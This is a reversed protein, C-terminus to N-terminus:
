SQRLGEKYVPRKKGHVVRREEDYLNPGNSTAKRFHCKGDWFKTDALVTCENEGTRMCCAGSYYCRRSM